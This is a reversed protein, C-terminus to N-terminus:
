AVNPRLLCEMVERDRAFGARAYFQVSEEAPWVYLSAFDQERAWAVVQRLLQGGIGKGRYGVRTYVNTVYGDADVLKNPKPVKDMRQIFIHSVILHDLVAVWCTWRGSALGSRLFPVCHALFTVKDHVPTGGAEDARWIWRMEALQEADSVIARRYHIGALDLSHMASQM